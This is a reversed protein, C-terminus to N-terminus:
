KKIRGEKHVNIYKVSGDTLNYVIWEGSQKGYSYYGSVALKGDYYYLIPGHLTNNIYSEIIKVHGRKEMFVWKGIRNYAPLEYGYCQIKQNKNFAIFLILSDSNFNVSDPVPLFKSTLEPYKQPQNVVLSTVNNNKDYYKFIGIPNIFEKDKFAGIMRIKGNKCYDTVMITDNSKVSLRYFNYKHISGRLCENIFYTTDVGQGCISITLGTLISFWLIRKKM